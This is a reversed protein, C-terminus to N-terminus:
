AEKQQARLNDFTAHAPATRCDDCANSEICWNSCDKNQGCEPCFDEWYGVEGCQSCTLAKEGTLLERKGASLISELLQWWAGHGGPMAVHLKSMERIITDLAASQQEETAEERLLAVAAGMFDNPAQDLHVVYETMFVAGFDKDRVACFPVSQMQAETFNYPNDQEKICREYELKRGWDTHTQWSAAMRTIYYHPAEGALLYATALEKYQHLTRQEGATKLRFPLFPSENETANM